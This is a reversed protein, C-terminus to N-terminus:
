IEYFFQMLRLVILIGIFILVTNFSAGTSILIVLISLWPYVDVLYKFFTAIELVDFNAIIANRRKDNMFYNFNLFSLLVGVSLFVFFGKEDFPSKLFFYMSMCNLLISVSLLRSASSEASLKNTKSVVYYTRFYIYHYVNTMWIM